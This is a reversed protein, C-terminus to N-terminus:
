LMNPATLCCHVIGKQKNCHGNVQKLICIGLIKLTERSLFHRWTMLQPQQSAKDATQHQALWQKLNTHRWLHHIDNIYTPVWNFCPQFFSLLFLENPHRSHWPIVTLAFKVSKENKYIYMCRLSKVLLMVPFDVYRLSLLKESKELYKFGM